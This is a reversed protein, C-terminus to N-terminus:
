RDPLEVLQVSASHKKLFGSRWSRVTPADAGETDTLRYVDEDANTEFCGVITVSAPNASVSSSAPDDSASTIPVRVANEAIATREAFTDASAPVPPLVSSVPSGPVAVAPRNTREAAASTVHGAGGAVVPAPAVLPDPVRDPPMASPVVLPRAVLETETLREQQIVAADPVLRVSPRALVLGAVVLLGVVIAVVM